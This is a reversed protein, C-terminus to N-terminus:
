DLLPLVFGVSDNGIPRIWRVSARPLSAFLHPFDEGRSPAHEFKLDPAVASTEVAILLLDTQGTYYLRLTEALQPATSFHQFGSASDHASGPYPDASVEWEGRPVIKFILM